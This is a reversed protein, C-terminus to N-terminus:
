SINQIEVSTGANHQFAPPPVAGSLKDISCGSSKPRARFPVGALTQCSSARRVAAFFRPMSVM